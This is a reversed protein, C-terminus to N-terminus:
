KCYKDFWKKIELSLYERKHSAIINHGEDEFLVLEVKKQLRRLALYFRISENYDIHYDEAGAWLLIPTNLNEISHFPSNKIYEDKIEFYPKGMRMQYDELRWMEERGSGWNITQYYTVLNTIAAGAAVAAFRNTQTAIFASEYGGFSFGYLGIKATDIKVKKIAHDLSEQVYKLASIGPNGLDYKIDPMLIFYGDLTYHTPNFGSTGFDSLPHFEHIWRSQDEYINVVMPYKKRPDYHAPYILVYKTNTGNKMTFNVLEPKGWDDLKKNENSHALTTTRDKKRDYFVIKPPMDYSQLRFIFYNLNEDWQIDDAIYPGYVIKLLPGNPPLLFYGADMNEDVAHFLLGKKSNVRDIHSKKPNNFNIVPTYKRNIERGDTLRIQSKGDLSLKWVDFEDCVLIANEDELWKIRSSFSTRREPRDDNANLFSTKSSRTLNSFKQTALSFSHWDGDRFFVIFEGNPDIFVQQPNQKRLLQLEKATHLNYLYFDVDSFYKYQPQHALIDIKLIYEDNVSMIETLTTDTITHILNTETNWCFRYPQIELLGEAKRRPYIYKDNGSWIQVGKPIKSDKSLTDPIGEFLVIKGLQSIESLGYDMQFNDINNLSSVDKYKCDIGRCSYIKSQGKIDDKPLEYFTIYNGDESWTIDKYTHTSSQKILTYNGTELNLKQVVSKGENNEILAIENRSPNISYELVGFLFSNKGNSLNRIALDMGKAAQKRAILYSEDKTFGRFAFSDLESTKNNELNVIIISSYNVSATLFKSDSTFGAASAKPIKFQKGGHIKKIFLTDNEAETSSKYCMWKGNNSIDGTYISEWEGDEKPQPNKNQSFSKIVISAMLLLLYYKM